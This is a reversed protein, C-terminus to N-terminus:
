LEEIIGFLEAVVLLVGAFILLPLGYLKGAICILSGGVIRIGSKIISTYFHWKTKSEPLQM